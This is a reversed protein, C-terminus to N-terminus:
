NQPAFSGSSFRLPLTLVEFIHLWLSKIWKNFNFAAAALMVNISDGQLGKLFNRKLRFDSKLHGIVPEIGARKRFRKRAKQKQYPTQTKSGKKPMLVQTSGIKSNGRYGKDVLCTHPENGTLRRHQELAPALTHGDYPNGAFNMAGTIIGGNKTKIIGAKQGFEYKRHEKGKSICSVEPEHLSYIKNKDKQKQAIVRAYLELDKGHTELAEDPLKRELERVLAGAITKLKRAAKRAAKARKPHTRNHQAKLLKPVTRKYSRRLQIGHEGALKVCKRIIKAHQKSDTPFTINKEQVTTDAIVEGECAAQGHLKISAALIKEAGDVGIRKRFYVLDSPDCPMQWVFERGGSFYQYYPNQTWKECVEEDSLDDIQKLLLLSVMLRVPKAPRGQDSYLNAFEVEFGEWDIREALRYLGQRPDLMSALDPCMFQTQANNTTESKM